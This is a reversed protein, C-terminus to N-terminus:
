PTPTRGNRSIRWRRKSNVPIDATDDNFTHEHSISKPGSREGIELRVLRWRRTGRSKGALALGWKGFRSELIDEDLAALDGIRRIGLAHLNKEMVKGVGPIKRVELPALFRAEVGPLVRLVGNPKAQDSAIKAVLRSTAIGISCNLLTEKKVMTFRTPPACPPGHLRETGTMDLYAEDVSAM